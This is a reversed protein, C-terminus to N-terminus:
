LVREIEARLRSQATQAQTLETQMQQVKEQEARVFRTYPAVAQNIRELSRNLEKESQNTLATILQQRLQGLREALEKKASQKRAPIVFLGLAAVVGAALIGTVDAAATTALAVVIAGLGVAGIEALATGAVAMQANEAIKEAEYTKNYTSVVRQAEKGVSGILHDRDYRFTGGVEGILRDEYERKRQELYGMVGHWQQLDSNVLWDILDNVKQDIAQPTDAVVEQEFSRRLRDKNLLDFIRALRMNEDFYANGRKEMEYLINEVDTLRFKVDRTM